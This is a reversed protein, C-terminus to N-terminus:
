EVEPLHNGAGLRLTREVADCRISGVASRVKTDHDGHGVFTDDRHGSRLLELLKPEKVADGAERRRGLGPRLQEFRDDVLGAVGQVRVDRGEVQEIAVADM